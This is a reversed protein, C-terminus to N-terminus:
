RRTSRAGRRGCSSARREEVAGYQVLAPVDIGPSQTMLDGLKYWGEDLVIYPINNKSAFDIFYKYTDNNM